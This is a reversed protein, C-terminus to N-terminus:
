KWWQWWRKNEINEELLKTNKQQEYLLLQQQQNLITQLSEIQNNKDEIEKKLFVNMEELKIVYDEKFDSTDNSTVDTVDTKDSLGKLILNVSTDDYLLTRGDQSTETINNSKIFRYVTMKSVGLIDAIQKTSKM